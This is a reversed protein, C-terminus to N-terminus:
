SASDRVFKKKLKITINNKQDVGMRSSAVVIEMKMKLIRMM